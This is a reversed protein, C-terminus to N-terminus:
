SVSELMRVLEVTRSERSHAKLDEARAVPAKGERVSRLFAALGRAIEEKSSLRVITDIGMSRLLRATDGEPDAVALIPRGARLCEYAKAPIQHNCISGQFVLLGDAALTEALNEVYDLAPELRVIDSIGREDIRKQYAPENGSARLVVKLISPSIEGGAKLAALADFFPIPDREKPYLLGSHVLVLRGDRRGPAVIREAAVFRDEDYGNEIVLWRDPPIEPYREAYMRLTGPATFVARACRRVVRREIRRCVARTTRDYPFEDETMADRFDAIWPVGSMAHLTLGILQATAIPYTSWIVDPRYKRILRLGSPVAGFWWSFWRDPLALWRPYRGAVALHKAADLAFSRTVAVGPPISSVHDDGVSPYARPNASLVVPRWGHAPLHQCFRLTRLIGSSGRFPPFHYAIMLVTKMTTHSDGARGDARDGWGGTAAAV